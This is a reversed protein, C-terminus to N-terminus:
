MMKMSMAFGQADALPSLPLLWMDDPAHPPAVAAMRPLSLPAAHPTPCPHPTPHMHPAIPLSIPLVTM